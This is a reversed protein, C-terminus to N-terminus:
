CKQHKAASNGCLRTRVALLADLFSFVVQALCDGPVALMATLGFSAPVLQFLCALLAAPTMVFVVVAVMVVIAALKFRGHLYERGPM